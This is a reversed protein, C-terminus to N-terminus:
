AGLGGHVQQSKGAGIPNQATGGEGGGGKFLTRRKREAMMAEAMDYCYSAIVSNEVNGYDPCAMLGTLTAKAFEDLEDM